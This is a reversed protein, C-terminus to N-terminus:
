HARPREGRRLKKQTGALIGKARSKMKKGKGSLRTAGKTDSLAFGLVEDIWRVSKIDLDNKINDPIEKLDKMNEAPIIV